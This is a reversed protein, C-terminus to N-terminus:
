SCKKLVDYGKQTLVRGVVPRVEILGEALLFKETDGQLARRTMGTLASLQTLTVGKRGNLSRLVNLEIPTLGMPLISLGNKIEEWIVHNFPGPEGVMRKQIKAAMKNAERASGRLVSAVEVLVGEDYVVEKKDLHVMLIQSLERNSYNELDIREMREKLPGNLKQADTTAFLFSQRGFDFALISDEYVFDYTQHEPNLISLMSMQVDKPLESCEDFLITVDKDVIQPIAVQYVFSEMNKISASNIEIYRKPQDGKTLHRAVNRALTTKGLGQPGNFLLHDIRKSKDYQDILWNLKRKARDQGIINPFRSM